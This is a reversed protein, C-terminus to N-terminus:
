FAYRLALTTENAHFARPATPGVFSSENYNQYNWGARFTVNRYFNYDVAALPLQYHSALPGLPQLLNYQTTNGSNIVFTYGARVNLRPTPKLLINLFGYQTHSNYFAYTQNLGSGDFCPVSNTPYTGAFCQYINQQVADFSYAMDLAWYKNPTVTTTFASHYNHQNYNIQSGDSYNTSRQYVLDAGASIWQNPAYTVSGNVSQGTRPDIRYAYNNASGFTADAHAHLGGKQYWAGM